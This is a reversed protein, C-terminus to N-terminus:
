SSSDSLLVRDVDYYITSGSSGDSNVNFDVTGRASLGKDRMLHSAFIDAFFHNALKGTKIVYINIDQIKM